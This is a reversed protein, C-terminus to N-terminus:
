VIRGQKMHVITPFIGVYYITGISIRSIIFM